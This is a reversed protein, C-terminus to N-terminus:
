AFSTFKGQPTFFAANCPCAYVEVQGDTREEIAFWREKGRHGHINEQPTFGWSLLLTVYKRIDSDSETKLLIDRWTFCVYPLELITM